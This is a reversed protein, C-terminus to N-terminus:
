QAGLEVDQYQQASKQDRPYAGAILHKCYGAAALIWQQRLRALEEEFEISAQAYIGGIVREGLRLPCAASRPPPRRDESTAWRISHLRTIRITLRMRQRWPLAHDTSESSLKAAEECNIM